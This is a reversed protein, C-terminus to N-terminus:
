YFFLASVENNEGVSGKIPRGKGSTANAIGLHSTLELPNPDLIIWATKGDEVDKIIADLKQCVEPAFAREDKGANPFKSTLMTRKKQFGDSGIATAAQIRLQPIDSLQQSDAVAPQDEEGFNRPASVQDRPSPSAITVLLREQILAVLRFVATEETGEKACRPDRKINEIWKNIEPNIKVTTNRVQLSEARDTIIYFKHGIARKFSELGEYEYLLWIVFELYLCGLSWIDYRRSTANDPHIETEPPAYAITEGGVMKSKSRFQTSKDHTRSLGVDSIVLICSTHDKVAKSSTSSNFCLINEPKLDGHRCTRNNDAYHLTQIADALGLLQDFVWKM